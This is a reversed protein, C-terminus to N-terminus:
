YWLCIYWGVAALPNSSPSPLVLPGLVFQSTVLGLTSKLLKDSSRLLWCSLIFGDGRHLRQWHGTCVLVTDRSWNSRALWKSFDQSENHEQKLGVWSTMCLQYYNQPVPSYYSSCFALILMTKQLCKSKWCSCCYEREGNIVLWYKGSSNQSVRLPAISGKIHPVQRGFILAM